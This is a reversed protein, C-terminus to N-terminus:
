GCWSLYRRRERPTMQPLVSCTRVLTVFTIAATGAEGNVRYCGEGPFFIASANFGTLGYGATRAHIPAGSGIEQGSIRLYGRVNPGRWWPFKMRLSGDPRVDRAPMLVLGNPWLSTWLGEAGFFPGTAAGGPPASGNPATVPCERIAEALPLATPRGPSAEAVHRSEGPSPASPSGGSSCSAGALVLSLILFVRMIRIRSWEGLLNGFSRTSWGFSAPPPQTRSGVLQCRNIRGGRASVLRGVIVVV